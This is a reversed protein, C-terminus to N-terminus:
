FNLQFVLKAFRASLISTPRQWTDFADSLELVGSSNLANYIDVGVNARTRGFQVIKGFRLDLQTWRDGYMSRPEVLQVEVNSEGGSLPRGLSPAIVANTATYTALIEPGPLNQLSASV